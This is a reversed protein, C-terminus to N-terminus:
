KREMLILLLHAWRIWFLFGGELFLVFEDASEHGSEVAVALDGDYFVFLGFLLEDESLKYLLEIGIEEQPLELGVSTQWMFIKNLESSKPNLIIDIDARTQEFYKSNKLMVLNRKLLPQDFIFIFIDAISIDSIKQFLHISNQTKQFSIPNEPQQRTSFTDCNKDIFLLLELLFINTNIRSGLSM